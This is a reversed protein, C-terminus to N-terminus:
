VGELGDNLTIDWDGTEEQLEQWAKLNNKLAAYGANTAELLQQGQFAKVAEEIIDQMSEGSSQTLEQLINRTTRSIRITTTPNM